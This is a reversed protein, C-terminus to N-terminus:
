MEDEDNPANTFPLAHQEFRPIIVATKDQTRNKPSKHYHEHLCTSVRLGNLNMKSYFVIVHKCSIPRSM